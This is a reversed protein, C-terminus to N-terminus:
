VKVKGLIRIKDLEWRPVLISEEDAGGEYENKYRIHTYGEARMLRALLTNFKRTHTHYLDEEEETWSDPDSYDLSLLAERVDPMKKKASPFYKDFNGDALIWWIVVDGGWSDHMDHNFYMEKKMPYSTVYIIGRGGFFKRLASINTFEEATSVNPSLHFGLNNARTLSDKSFRNFSKKSGHYLVTEGSPAKKSLNAIKALTKDNAEVISSAFDKYTQM